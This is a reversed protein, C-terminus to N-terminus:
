PITRVPTTTQSGYAVDPRSPDMRGGIIGGALWLVLFFLFTSNVRCILSAWDLWHNVFRFEVTQGGPPLLVAKYAYNARYVPISRGDVSATWNPHWTDAYYLWVPETSAQELELQLFNAGYAKVRYPLRISADGGGGDGSCNEKPPMQGPSLALLPVGAQYEPAKMMPLIAEVDPSYCARSYFQIKPRSVGSVARRVPNDESGFFAEFQQNEKQRELIRLKERYLEAFVFADTWSYWALGKFRQLMPLVEAYRSGAGPYDYSRQAVFPMPTFRWLAYGEAELKYARTTFLMYRFATVDATQMVALLVMFWIGWWRRYAAWAMVGLISLLIIYSLRIQQPIIPLRDPIGRFWHPRLALSGLFFILCVVLVMCGVWRRAQTGESRVALADFGFGAWFCLFATALPAVYAIHRYFKMGPFILWALTSVVGEPGLSFLFITLTVAMFVFLRRSPITLALAACALVLFGRYPIIDPTFVNLGIFMELYKRIGLFDAYTNFVKFPVTGDPNRGMPEVYIHGVDHLSCYFLAAALLGLCAAVMLDRRRWKWTDIIERIERPYLILYATFYVVIVLLQIISCYPAVNISTFLCLDGALFIRWRSNNELGTHILYLTLPLAHYIFLNFHYQELWISSITISIAVFYVTLPHRYLRRGLLWVGTLLVVEAFLIHLYYYPLFNTVLGQSNLFPAVNMFFFLPISSLGTLSFFGTTGHVDYPCWKAFWEGQVIANMQFYQMTMHWWTDHGPPVLRTWLLYCIFLSVELLCLLFLWRGVSRDQHESPKLLFTEVPELPEHRTECARPSAPIMYYLSKEFSKENRM